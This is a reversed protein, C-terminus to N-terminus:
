QPPGWFLLQMFWIIFGYACLLLVAAIPLGIFGIVFFKGWERFKSVKTTM